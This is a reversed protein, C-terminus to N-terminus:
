VYLNSNLPFIYQVSSLESVKSELEDKQTNSRKLLCLIREKEGSFSSADDRLIELQNNLKAIDNQHSIEAKQLTEVHNQLDKLQNSSDSHMASLQDKWLITVKDMDLENQRIVSELELTRQKLSALEQNDEKWSLLKTEFEIKLAVLQDREFLADALMKSKMNVHDQLIAIQDELLDYKRSITANTSKLTNLEKTLDVIDSELCSTTALISAEKQNLVDIDDSLKKNVLILQEREMKLQTTAENQAIYTKHLEDIESICQRHEETLEFINSLAALKDDEAVRLLSTLNEVEMSLLTLQNEYKEEVSREAKKSNAILDMAVTIDLERLKLTEKLDEIQKVMLTKQQNLHDLKREHSIELDDLDSQKPSNRLRDELLSM